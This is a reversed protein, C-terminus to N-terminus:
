LLVTRNPPNIKCNSFTSFWQDLTDIVAIRNAEWESSDAGMQIVNLNDGDVLLITLRNYYDEESDQASSDEQSNLLTVRKAHVPGGKMAVLLQIRSGTIIGYEFLTYDDGLERHNHVLIMQSIPLGLLRQLKLKFSFVTLYRNVTVIFAEGSVPEM